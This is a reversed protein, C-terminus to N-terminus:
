KLGLKRAFEVRMYLAMQNDSLPIFNNKLYFQKADEDIADVLILTVAVREAIDIIDTIASFLLKGGIGQKQFKSSIALRGIKIASILPYPAKVQSEQKSISTTLLTYYGAIAKSKECWLVWTQGIDQESNKRAYKKLYDNLSSKGCDFSDRYSISDAKEREVLNNIHIIQFQDVGM